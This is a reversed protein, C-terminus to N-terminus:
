IESLTTKNQEKVLRKKKKSRFPFNDLKLCNNSCEMIKLSIFEFPKKTVIARKLFDDHYIQYPKKYYSMKVLIM